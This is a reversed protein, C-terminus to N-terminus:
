GVMYNYKTGTESMLFAPPEADECWPINAGRFVESEADLDYRVFYWGESKGFFAWYELFRGNVQYEYIGIREAYALAKKEYGRRLSRRKRDAEDAARANAIATKVNACSFLDCSYRTNDDGGHVEEPDKDTASFAFLLAVDSVVANFLEGVTLGRAAHQRRAEHAFYIACASVSDFCRIDEESDKYTSRLMVIMKNM